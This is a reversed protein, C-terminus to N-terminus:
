HYHFQYSIKKWDFHTIHICGVIGSLLLKIMKFVDHQVYLYNVWCEWIYLSFYVSDLM